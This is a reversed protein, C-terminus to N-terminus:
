GLLAPAVEGTRRSLADMWGMRHSPGRVPRHRTAPLPKPPTWIAAGRRARRCSTLPMPAASTNLWAQPSAIHAAYRDAGNWIKVFIGQLAAEAETRDKM